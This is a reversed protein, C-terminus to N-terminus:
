APPRERAVVTQFRASPWDTVVIDRHPYDRAAQELLERAWATFGPVTMGDYTWGGISVERVWGNV